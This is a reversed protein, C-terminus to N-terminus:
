PRNWALRRGILHPVGSVGVAALSVNCSAPTLSRTSFYKGGLKMGNDRRRLPFLEYGRHSQDHM